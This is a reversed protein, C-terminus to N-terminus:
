KILIQKKTKQNSRKKSALGFFGYFFKTPKKPSKFDGFVCKSILQGKVGM